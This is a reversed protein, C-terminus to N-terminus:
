KTDQRKRDLYEALAEDMLQYLDRGEQAAQVKLTRMRDERVKVGRSIWKPGTFVKTSGPEEAEFANESEHSIANTGNQSPAAENYETSLIVGAGKRIPLTTEETPVTDGLLNALRKKGNDAAM